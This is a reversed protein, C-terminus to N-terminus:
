FDLEDRVQTQATVHLQLFSALLPFASKHTSFAPLIGEWGQLVANHGRWLDTAWGFAGLVRCLPHM